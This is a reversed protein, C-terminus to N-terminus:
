AAHHYTFNVLPMPNYPNPAFNDVDIPPGSGPPKWIRGFKIGQPKPKLKKPKSKKKRDEQVKPPCDGKEECSPPSSSAKPPSPPAPPGTGDPCRPHVKSELSIAEQLNGFQLDGGGYTKGGSCVVEDEPCEGDGDDDASTGVCTSVGDYLFVKNTQDRAVKGIDEAPFGLLYALHCWDKSLFCKGLPYTKVFGATDQLGLASVPHDATMEKKCGICWLLDGTIDGISFEVCDDNEACALACADHNVNEAGRLDFVRDPDGLLGCKKGGRAELQVMQTVSGKPCDPHVKGPTDIAAKINLLQDRSYGYNIKGDFEGSCIAETPPCASDHVGAGVCTNIGDYWYYGISTDEPGTYRTRTIKGIEDSTFIGHLFVLACTWEGLKCSTHMMAYNKTDAALGGADLVLRGSCGMCFTPNDPDDTTMDTDHIALTKCGETQACKTECAEMAGLGLGTLHFLEQGPGCVMKQAKNDFPTAKTGPDAV